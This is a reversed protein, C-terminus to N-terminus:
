GNPSSGWGLKTVLNHWQPVSPNRIIRCSHPSRTIRVKDRIRLPCSVQGDLLATTGPNVEEAQIVLCSTSNIVIPRHTLSHPNMPTLVISHVAVMLLPGGASLNHATSGTPTCVILGDGFVTSLRRGDLEVAFSTLRFPPGGHIVCDNLCFGAYGRQGDAHEVRVDLMMRESILDGNVLVADFEKMLQEVSFHTLFGLKGFNVGILPIQNAELSRAVSLVTGDGGLVVLFDAGTETAQHAHLGLEAGVLNARKSIFATLEKMAGPVEPKDPNGLIFVRSDAKSPSM